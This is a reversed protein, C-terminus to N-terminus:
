LIAIKNALREKKTWYRHEMKVLADLTVDKELELLLIDAFKEISKKIEKGRRWDNKVFEFLFHDFEDELYRNILAITLLSPNKKISNSFHFPIHIEVQEKFRRNGIDLYLGTARPEMTSSLTSIIFFGHHTDLNIAPPDGYLYILFKKIHSKTPLGFEKYRM